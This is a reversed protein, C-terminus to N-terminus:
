YVHGDFDELGPSYTYDAYKGPCPVAPLYSTVSENQMKFFHQRITSIQTNNHKTNLPNNYQLSFGDSHNVFINCNPVDHMFLSWFLDGAIVPNSTKQREEIVSYWSELSPASAINGTWDYEGAIYVKNASGVLDIDSKLKTINLPYYHDDFADVSAISLHSKNVGYTGDICLKHPALQKIYQCIEDTWKVPVDEDGFTPGSLENGTEYAFITPDEAYTLGTYPNVHTILHKIYNKFDGIITPDTYFKQVAAPLPQEGTANIDIGRFRLFSFKGGHYYDYNDVLPAFIRLGHQRAQFVAYDITDFAQDNFDNLAPELSLPNGVSVGLTQSRITHAGMTVLTNMVETIRGKTPYSANFPEYFPEGKPPIVNEDLGLWYM